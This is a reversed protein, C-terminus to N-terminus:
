SDRLARRGRRHESACTAASRKSPQSCAGWGLGLRPKSILNSDNEGRAADIKGLGISKLVSLADGGWAIIIRGVIAALGVDGFRQM